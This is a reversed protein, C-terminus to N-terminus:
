NETCSLSIPLIAGNASILFLQFTFALWFWLCLHAHVCVCVCMCICVASIQVQASLSWLRHDMAKADSIDGSERGETINTEEKIMHDMFIIGTVHYGQTSLHSFWMTWLFTSEFLM